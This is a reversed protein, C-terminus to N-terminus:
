VYPTTPLTLHTYSVSLTQCQDHASLRAAASLVKLSESQCFSLIFSPCFSLVVFHCHCRSQRSSQAAAAARRTVPGAAAVRTGQCARVYGVCCAGSPKSLVIPRTPPDNGSEHSVDLRPSASSPQGSGFLVGICPWIGDVGEARSLSHRVYIGCSRHAYKQM